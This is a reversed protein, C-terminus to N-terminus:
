FSLASRKKFCYNLIFPGGEILPLKLAEEFSFWKGESHETQDIYLSPQNSFAVYYLAFSCKFLPSFRRLYLKNFPILQKQKLTIGTEENVERIAGAIATENKEIEGGPLCWSNGESDNPLRKLLLVKENWELFCGAISILETFFSPPTEFVELLSEKKKKVM